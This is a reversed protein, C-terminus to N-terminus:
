LWKETWFELVDLPRVDNEDLPPSGKDEAEDERGAEPAGCSRRAECSSVFGLLAERDAFRDEVVRLLSAVEEPRLRCVKSIWRAPVGHAALVCVSEIRHAWRGAARASLGLVLASGPGDGSELYLKTFRGQIEAANM